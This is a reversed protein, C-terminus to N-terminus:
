SERACNRCTGREDLRVSGCAGCVRPRPRELPAWARGQGAPEPRWKAWADAGYADVCYDWDSLQESYYDM